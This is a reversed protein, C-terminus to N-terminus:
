PLGRTEDQSLEHHLLPQGQAWRNSRAAPRPSSRLRRRAFGLPGRAGTSRLEQPLHRRWDDRTRCRRRSIPFQRRRAALVIGLGHLVNVGESVDPNLREHYHGAQDRGEAPGTIRMIEAVFGQKTYDIAEDAGLQRLRKCKDDGSSTTIVKAGLHRAIQIAAIGVGSSGAQVLVWDGAK